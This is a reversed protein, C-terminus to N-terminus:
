SHQNDDNPRQKITEDFAEKAEEISPIFPSASTSASGQLVVFLKNMFINVERPYLLQDIIHKTHTYNVLTHFDPLPKCRCTLSVNLMLSLLADAYNKLFNPTWIISIDKLKDPRPNTKLASILNADKSANPYRIFFAHLHIKDSWLPAQFPTDVVSKIFEALNNVKSPTFFDSEDLGDVLLLPKRRFFKLTLDAARELLNVSSTKNLADFMDYKALCHLVYLPRNRDGVDSSGLGYSRTARDTLSVWSQKYILDGVLVYPKLLFLVDFRSSETRSRPM